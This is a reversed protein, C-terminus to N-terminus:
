KTKRNRLKHIAYGGAGILLAAALTDLPAGEENDAPPPTQAETILFSCNLILFLLLFKKM